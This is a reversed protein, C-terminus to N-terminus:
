GYALTVGVFLLKTNVNICDIGLTGIGSITM